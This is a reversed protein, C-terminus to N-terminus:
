NKFIKNRYFTKLSEYSIFVKDIVEYKLLNRDLIRESQHRFLSERKIENWNM